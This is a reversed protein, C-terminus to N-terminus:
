QKHIILDWTDKWRLGRVDDATLPVVGFALPAFRYFVLVISGIWILVAALFILKVLRTGINTFKRAEDSVSQVSLSSHKDVGLIKLRSKSV